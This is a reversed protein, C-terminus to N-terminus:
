GGRKGRAERQIRLAEGAGIGLEEALDALEQAEEDSIKGDALFRRVTSRYLDARRDGSGPGAGADRRPVATEAVRDALRQIPALAFLLAGVALIGLLQNGVFGELLVQAGESVVFFVAVFVGTVATKSVGWRVRRDIDLLDHKLIGYTLVLVGVTRTIGYAGIPDQLGQVVLGVLPMALLYLAVNRTAGSEPVRRTRELWLASLGAMAVVGLATAWASWTMGSSIGLDTARTAGVIFGLYTAFAVTVLRAETRRRPDVDPGYALVLGYLVALLPAIVGASFAIWQVHVGTGGWAPFDVARFAVIEPSFVFLLAAHVALVIGGALAAGRLPRGVEDTMRGVLARVLGVAGVGAGVLLPAMVWPLASGLPHGLLPSLNSLIFYSGFAGAFLGFARNKAEGPAVRVVYIALVLYLTGGLMDLLRSILPEVM